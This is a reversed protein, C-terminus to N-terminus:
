TRGEAQKGAHEPVPLAIEFQAGGGPAKRVSVNGDHEDVVNRVVALGLGMGSEKSSVYPQFIRERDDESVGPGSDIVLLEVTEDRCQTRITLKGAKGAADLGNEILNILVRRMQDADLDLEPLDSSLELRIHAEPYLRVSDMVVSNLDQRSLSLTPMRAFDAFEQVLARLNEVEETVIETCDEMLKRYAPDDGPYKDRVQQVTLQIPTLPNKIEHALRRAIERWAAIKEADLRRQRNENLDEAMRNFSDILLGIEDDRGPPIRYDLNDRALERTGKILAYLPNTIEFGIRIGVLSALLVVGAAAVLFAMLFGRHLDEEEMELHKYTHVAREVNLLEGMQETVVLWSIVRDDETVPVVMQLLDEQGPIRSVPPEKLNGIAPSGAPMDSPRVFRLSVDEIGEDTILHKLRDPDGVQLAERLAASGMLQRHARNLAAKRWAYNEKALVLADTLAQGMELNVSFGLSLNLYHRAVLSLALTTGLALAILAIIIRWRLPLSTM